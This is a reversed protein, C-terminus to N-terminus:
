EDINEEREKKKFVRRIVGSLGDVIKDSALAMNDTIVDVIRFMRDAKALKVGVEDMIANFRNVVNILKIGLIILIVLLISGLLCLVMLLFTNVDVVSIMGKMM